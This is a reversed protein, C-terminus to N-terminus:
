YVLGGLYIRTKKLTLNKVENDKELISIQKRSIEMDYNGQIMAVKKWAQDNSVGDKWATALIFHQLEANKDKLVIDLKYYLRYIKEMYEKMLVGFELKENLSTYVQDNHKSLFTQCLELSLDLYEKAESYRGTLIMLEAMSYFWRLQNHADGIDEILMDFSKQLCEEAEAYYQPGSALYTEALLLSNPTM